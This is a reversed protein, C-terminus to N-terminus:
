NVFMRQNKVTRTVLKRGIRGKILPRAAEPLSDHNLSRLEPFINFVEERAENTLTELATPGTYLTESPAGEVFVIEHQSCLFHFYEIEEIDEAVDIGEILTMHKAAILVENTDFMRWAIKNQALMRHHPSVVVDQEPLNNGLAGARIRIPRLSPSKRMENRDIKRSGIWRIAQYGHDATEVMDGVQLDRVKVPGADTMVHNDGTFCVACANFTTAPNVGDAVLWANVQDLTGIADFDNLTIRNGSGDIYYGDDKSGEAQDYVTGTGVTYTVGNIVFVTGTPLALYDKGGDNAASIVSGTGFADVDSIIVVNTGGGLNVTTGTSTNTQHFEFWDNGSQGVIQDGSLNLTSTSDISLYNNGIGFDIKGGLSGDVNTLELCDDGDQASYIFDSRITTNSISAESGGNGLDIPGLNTINSLTLTEFGLGAVINATGVMTVNDMVLTDNGDGLNIRGSQLSNTITISDNDAEIGVSDGTINRFSAGDMILTDSGDNLEIDQLQVSYTTGDFSGDITIVDDGSGARFPGAMLTLTSGNGITYIDAGALLDISDTGNYTSTTGNVIQQNGILSGTDIGTTGNAM